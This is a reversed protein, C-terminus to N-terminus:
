LDSFYCKPKQGGPKSWASRKGCLSGNSARSYPCPCSGSYNRISEDIQKQKYDNSSTSYYADPIKPKSEKKPGSFFGGVKDFLTELGKAAKDWEVADIQRKLLENEKRIAELERETIDDLMEQIAYIGSDHYHYVNISRNYHGGSSDTRGSHSSAILSISLLLITLFSKMHFAKSNRVREM